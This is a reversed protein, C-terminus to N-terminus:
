IVPLKIMNINVMLKVNQNLILIHKKIVLSNSVFIHSYVMGIMPILSIDCALGLESSSCQIIEISQLLNKFKWREGAEDRQNKM